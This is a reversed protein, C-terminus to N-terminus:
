NQGSFAEEFIRLNEDAESRKIAFVVKEFFAAKGQEILQEYFLKAVTEAPNAFAGCGFAGLVLVDAQADKAVEIINAIRRRMCECYKEMGIRAFPTEALYPAACTMVDARFPEALPAYSEDEKFVTVGPSFIIRDSGMKGASRENWKYYHRRFYPVTLAPYLNSCRCLCEEQAAAGARVGGGPNYPNAFNLVAVHKGQRAFGQACHFTTDGIVEVPAAGGRKEANLARYDDLFLRSQGRVRCTERALEEDRELAAMTERFIEVLEPASYRM